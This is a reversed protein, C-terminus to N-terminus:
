SAPHPPDMDTPAGLAGGPHDGEHQRPLLIIDTLEDNIMASSCM